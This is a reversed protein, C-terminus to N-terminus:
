ESDPGEKDSFSSRRLGRFHFEAWGLLYGTISSSPISSAPAYCRWNTVATHAISQCKWWQPTLHCNLSWESPGDGKSSFIDRAKGDSSCLPFYRPQSISSSLDSFSTLPNPSSSLVAGCMTNTGICGSPPTYQTVPLYALAGTQVRYTEFLADLRAFGDFLFLGIHFVPTYDEGMIPQIAIPIMPLRFILETRGCKIGGLIISGLDDFIMIPDNIFLLDEPQSELFSAAEALVHDCEMDSLLYCKPYSVSKKAKKKKQVQTVASKEVSVLATDMFSAFRFDLLLLLFSGFDLSRM